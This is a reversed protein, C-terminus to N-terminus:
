QCKAKKKRRLQILLADIKATHEERKKAGILPQGYLKENQASLELKGALSGIDFALALASGEEFINKM